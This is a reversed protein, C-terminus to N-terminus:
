DAPHTGVIELGEPADATFLESLVRTTGEGDFVLRADKTPHARTVPATL